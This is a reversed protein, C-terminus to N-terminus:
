QLMLQAQLSKTYFRALRQRDDLLARYRDYFDIVRFQRNLTEQRVLDENILQRYDM